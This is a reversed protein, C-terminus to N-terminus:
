ENEDWAIPGVSDRKAALRTFVFYKEGELDWGAVDEGEDVAAGHIKLLNWLIIKKIRKM